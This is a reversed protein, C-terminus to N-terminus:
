IAVTGKQVARVYGRLRRNISWPDDISGTSICECVSSIAKCAAAIRVAGSSRGRRESRPWWALVALTQAALGLGYEAWRLVGWHTVLEVVDVLLALVSLPSM